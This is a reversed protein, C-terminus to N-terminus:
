IFNLLNHSLSVYVYARLERKENSPCGQVNTILARGKPYINEDNKFL